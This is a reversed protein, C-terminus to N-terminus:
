PLPTATLHQALFPRILAMTSDADEEHCLHGLGAIEALSANPMRAAAKVSVQPPVARDNAAAILLTPTSIAPLRSLLGDLKWQAMMSLTGDVHEPRRVLALYQALGAADLTSGTGAILTQVRAPTGSMRSFIRPILPNLALVKALIPFLWGEVGDFNGLAANIGIIARPPTPLTEAMRLAIAAGASHGIIAQPHWNEQTCLRILDEAMADLGTRTRSGLVSFGQGPLDPMLVRHDQALLPALHRFSHTSGGAGHLLLIDPGAGLTQVHWLHPRCNVRTSHARLPWDPPVAIPTM